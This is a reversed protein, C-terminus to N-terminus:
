PSTGLTKRSSLGFDAAERRKTVLHVITASAAETVRAEFDLRRTNSLEKRLHMRVMSIRAEGTFLPLWSETSTFGISDIDVM